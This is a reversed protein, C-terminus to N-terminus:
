RLVIRAGRAAREARAFALSILVSTAAAGLPLWADPEPGWLNPWDRWWWLAAAAVWVASAFRVAVAGSRRLTTSAVAVAIDIPFYVPFAALCYGSSTAVGKGGRGRSWVPWIHGAVAVTGALAAGAGGAAAEGLATAVAGKSVDVVLVVLGWRMGLTAIANTAGPNGDGTARLDVRGATAIRAVLDATPASGLLYGAAVAVLILV